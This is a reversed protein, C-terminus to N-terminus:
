HSLHFFGSASWATFWQQVETADGQKLASALSDDLTCGAALYTLLEFQSRTLEHRRVIYDRRYLAVFQENPAPWQPSRGAKWASFFSSVPFRFALLRFGPVLPLPRDGAPPDEALPAGEPGADDFVVDIAHELRALDVVFGAAEDDAPRTAELFDAFHDALRHLTYSGPPHQQLYDVAFQSFLEDGIAFRLCPFLEGLVDLLRAFYANSYVALREAASQQSSPLIWDGIPATACGAVVGAPHTIAALMREQTGRLALNENM